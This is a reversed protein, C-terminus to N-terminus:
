NKRVKKARISYKKPFYLMVKTGQNEESQIDLVGGHAEMVMHCYSLGFGWNKGIGKTTFFPEKVHALHVSPIGIGDDQIIVKINTISQRVKITLRGNNNMAEIANRFLNCFLEKIHVVDGDIISISIYDKFVQINKEKILINTSEISDDIIDILNCPESFIVIEVMHEHIRESMKALHDISKKSIKLIEQVEDSLDMCLLTNNGINLKELENKLAHNMISLGNNIVKFMYDMSVREIRFKVGLVGYKFVLILFITILIFVPWINYIWMQNIINLLSPLYSFIANAVVPITLLFVLRRYRRIGKDKEKLYAFLLISIGCIAYSFGWISVTWFMKGHPIYISLFGEKPFIFDLAFNILIPISLLYKLQKKRKESFLDSYNIGIQIFFYPCLRYGLASLFRSFLGLYAGIVAHNISIDPVVHSKLIEVIYGWSLAFLFASYWINKKDRILILSLSWLILIILIGIYIYIM